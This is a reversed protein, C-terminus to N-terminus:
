FKRLYSWKKSYIDIFKLKKIIYKPIYCDKINKQNIKFRNSFTYRNKFEESNFYKLLENLELKNQHKPLIMLLNGGFYQVHSKFCIKNKRSLNHIYLCQNNKYKDIIKKNRPLGFEYWNKENIKRIKRNILIDKHKLLYKNLNENNTPFSNLYIYNDVNNEGNILSVNGFENNKLINENGSVMGVYVNFYDDFKIFNDNNHESFILTGNNLISFMLKDNYNIMTNLKNTKKYRFILVDISAEDFLNENNPHYIDTFNGNKIM